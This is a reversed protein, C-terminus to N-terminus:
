PGGLGDLQERQLAHVSQLTNKVARMIRVFKQLERQQASDDARDILPQYKEIHFDCKSIYIEVQDLVGALRCYRNEEELLVQSLIARKGGDQEGDLRQFFNAVNNEVIFRELADDRRDQVM